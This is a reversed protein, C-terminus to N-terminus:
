RRAFALLYQVEYSVREPLEREAKETGASIEDEDLLDFTSISRGRIRELALQRDLESTQLLRVFRPTDFGAAGLEKTLQEPSPHRALDIEAISPFFENQWYGAFHEPAFTVIAVRGGPALVRHLEEFALSWEILHVVTWLVAADFYGDKFPLREAEGLKLGVSSPVRERAEALMEASSDIGWVRALGRESLVRAFKGTGCGVDLVRAGRLDAERVVVEFVELWNEDIPRL